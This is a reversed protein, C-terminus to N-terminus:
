PPAGGRTARLKRTIAPPVDPADTLVAVEDITPVVDLLPTAPFSPVNTTTSPAPAPCATALAVVALIINTNKM